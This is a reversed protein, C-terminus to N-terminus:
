SGSLAGPSTRQTTAGASQTGDSTDILRSLVIAYGVLYYAYWLYAVSLFFSSVMFSIISTELGVSLYYQRGRRGTMKTRRLESLRRLPTILFIIYVIMAPIGLEAGVQTYANHSAHSSNSWFVFNNIGVGVLPHRLMLFTSRKLEDTRAMASPDSSTTVRDQYGGPGLAALALVLVLGAGGLLARNQRALKWGLVSVACVLGVFGGRSFTAVIGAIFLIACALFLLKKLVGRTGLSLGIAIPVMTVLHLALDNPNNFLGGLMVEIRLKSDVVQGQGLRYANIAEGSMLCSAIVALLILASLRKETRVVNVMVIFMVIVKLYDLWTNWASAPELSGPISILAAIALFILCSVERQKVSLRNELGLQTPVFVLLTFVAVWFAPNKIFLLTPYLEQPRFYILLTFLFLGIFSLTHGRKLFTKKAQKEGARKRAPVKIPLRKPLSLDKDSSDALGSSMVKEESITTTGPRTVPEYDMIQTNHRM